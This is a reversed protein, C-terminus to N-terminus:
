LPCTRTDKRPRATWPGGTGAPFPLALPPPNASYPAHRPSVGPAIRAASEAAAAPAEIRDRCDPSRSRKM